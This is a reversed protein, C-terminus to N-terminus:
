RSSLITSVASSNNVTLTPTTITVNSTTGAITTETVDADSANIFDANNIDGNSDLKLIWSDANGAGFSNTHGAVIYGGDSTQQIFSARDQGISGYTKQWTPDGSTDLKLIWFDDSYGVGFASSYGAVIYGGDTTQKISLAEEWGYGGFTKQWSASGYSDLKIIWSEYFLDVKTM